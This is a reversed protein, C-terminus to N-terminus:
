AAPVGIHGSGDSASPSAIEVTTSFGSTFNFNHHVGKVYFQIGYDALVMLMGPFLEPMFTIPARANFQNAWNRQLTYVAHFFEAQPQSLMGLEVHDVRAGFRNMIKAKTTLTELRPDNKSAEKSMLLDVIGPFEITAVGGAETMRRIREAQAGPAGWGHETGTVFQHTILRQDDWVMTFDELEVNQIIMKGAMKFSGTYDPFWAIFDGNPGACYSRMSAKCLRDMFPLFAQDNILRRKGAFLSAGPDGMEYWDYTFMQGSLGGITGGGLGLQSPDVIHEGNNLSVLLPYPNQSTSEEGHWGVPGWGFHLHFAGGSGAGTDGSYGIVQGANVHSGTGLGEAFRSLHYYCFVGWATDDCTLYISNGSNTSSGYEITGSTVAVLPTGEPCSVDQGHHTGNRYPRPALWTDSFEFPGGAIPFFLGGLNDGAGHSPQDSGGQSGTNPDTTPTTPTTPTPTTPAASPDSFVSGAGVLDGPVELAQQVLTSFTAVQEVWTNPIKGVHIGQPWQGVTRLMEVIKDRMGGDVQTANDGAFSDLNLLELNSELQEDWLLYQLRKLTCTATLNVTRPYASFFPTANLYGAFVQVWTLRKLQVSVRDNPTFVRDYKRRHNALNVNCTHPTNEALHVGGSVIDESVDITGEHQTDILVRVGPAYLLTGM